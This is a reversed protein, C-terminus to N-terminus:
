TDLDRRWRVFNPHRLSGSEFKGRSEVEFWKGMLRDKLFWIEERDQATFGGGVRVEVGERTRGIIAGLRGTHQGMGEVFGIVQLETTYTNKERFLPADVHSDKRRYVLGEFAGTEVQGTWLADAESMPFNQVLAFTDPLRAMVLKLFRYRLSYPQDYLAAGDYRWIDFLYTKGERTPDCAWETGQMHEGILITQLSDDAFCFEKFKRNTRSYFRVWGNMIEIRSWWGDYKLQCLDCGAALAAARTSDRYTQRDTKM